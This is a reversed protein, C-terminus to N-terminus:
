NIGRGKLRKYQAYGGTKLIGLVRDPLFSTQAYAGTSLNRIEEKPLDIELEDGTEVEASISLELEEIRKM